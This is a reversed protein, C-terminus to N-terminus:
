KIINSIGGAIIAALLITLTAIAVAVWGFIEMAMLCSYEIEERWKKPKLSHSKAAAITYTTLLVLVGLTLLSLFVIFGDINSEGVNIPMIIPTPYIALNEM